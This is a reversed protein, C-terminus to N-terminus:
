RIRRLEMEYKGDWLYMRNGHIDIDYRYTDGYFSSYMNLQGMAIAYNGADVESNYHGYVDEYIYVYVWKGDPTFNYTVEEYLERDEYYWNWAGVIEQELRWDEKDCSVLGLTMLVVVAMMTNRFIREM